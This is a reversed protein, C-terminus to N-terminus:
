RREWDTFDEPTLSNKNDVIFNEKRYTDRSGFGMKQAVIEDTRQPTDSNQRVTNNGFQTASKREEAKVREIRELRRAYDVMESISFNKREENESVELNLQHEADKVAMHRLEINELRKQILRIRGAM